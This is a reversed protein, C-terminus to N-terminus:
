DARRRGVVLLTGLALGWLGSGAALASCGKLEGVEDDDPRGSYAWAKGGDLCEDPYPNPEYACTGPESVWGVGCVEFQSELEYVYDIYRVQEQDTRGTTYFVVDQTAEEPSYRMHLRSIYYGYEMIEFDFGLNALKQEDPQDGTCPDCHGNGWGYELMWDAGAEAEYAGNFQDLYYAGLDGGWDTQFTSDLMCEDPLSMEPYNSIGVGGDAYDTVAYVILDQVGKSAATGIRIPLSFVESDYSFQLPSLTDGDGLEADASVKAAFFYAGGDLYEQVMDETAGSIQYGEDHLWGILATSEEASLIVIEYEGVVFEAEVDVDWGDDGGGGDGGGDAEAALDNAYRQECPDDYHPAFDDCTYEVLRPRTYADLVGFDGPDLVHVDDESLVEPVPILMAFGSGAAGEVDNSVSLTTRNGQRVVAVESVNNYIDTGASSAYAGCFAHAPTAVLLSLLAPVM